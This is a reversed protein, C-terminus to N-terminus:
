GFDVTGSTQVPIRGVARRRLLWVAGQTVASTTDGLIVCFELKRRFLTTVDSV